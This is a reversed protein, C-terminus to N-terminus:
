YNRRNGGLESILITMQDILGDISTLMNSQGTQIEDKTEKATDNLENLRTDIAKAIDSSIKNAALKLNEEVIEEM